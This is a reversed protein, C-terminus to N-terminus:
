KAKKLTFSFTTGVGETSRVNITQNHADIIHKVIALGLGTGGAHRARSKDVRYFREFLRTLHEAAIGIGNDAIEILLNQDLDYFRVETIGNERGYNISNAVLNTIVQNIKSRDGVVMKPKKASAKQFTLQINKEKAKRELSGFVEEVEEVINFRDMKLLEADSELKTIVDLDNVLDILRDLNKDARELYDRNIQPDELGGELLTFLYGQINFIPTKIEHALNGIFERRFREQKKLEQIEAGQESAWKQVDANVESLIDRSMNVERMKVSDNVKLKHMTRYILKIKRYILREIGINALVFVVIASVIAASTSTILSFGDLFLIDVFSILAAVLLGSVLGMLLAINRPSNFNM